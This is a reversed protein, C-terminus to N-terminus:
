AWGREALATKLYAYYIPAMVLGAIGFIAEMTLMALPLHIGFLGLGLVLYLGTLAANIAAIKM